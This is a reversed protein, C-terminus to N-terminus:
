EIVQVFKKMCFGHLNNKSPVEVEVFENDSDNEREIVTLDCGEKLVDVVDADTSMRNRLNLLVCNCVKAPKRIVEEQIVANNDKVNELTEDDYFTDDVIQNEEMKAVISEQKSNENHNNNYNKYNNGMILEEQYEEMSM